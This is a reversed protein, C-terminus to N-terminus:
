YILMEQLMFTRKVLYLVSCTAHKCSVLEKEHHSAYKNCNSRSAGQNTEPTDYGKQIQRLTMEHMEMDVEKPYETYDGPVCSGKDM